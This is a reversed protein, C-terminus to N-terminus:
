RRLMEACLLLALIRAENENDQWWVSGSNVPKFYKQFYKIDVSNQFYKIDVSNEVDYGRIYRHSIKVNNCAYTSSYCSTNNIWITDEGHQLEAALLFVSRLPRM